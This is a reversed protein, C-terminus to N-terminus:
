IRTTTKKWTDAGALNFYTELNGPELSGASIEKSDISSSFSTSIDNDTDTDRDNNHSNSMSSKDYYAHM